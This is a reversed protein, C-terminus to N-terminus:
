SKTKIEKEEGNKSKEKNKLFARIYDKVGLPNQIKIIAYALAPTFVPPYFVYYAPEWYTPNYKLKTNYLTKFGYVDNMKEYILNLLKAAVDTEEELRALPAIALSGWEVGEDRFKMMAEYFIKEMVGRTANKRHRTVDAMYGDMGAFPVFVMFGEVENDQNLAYFYRKEMPNEFGIGGMTFVLESSKKMTFWEQSVSLIEKELAHNKRKLPEYEQITIGAKTAHNINLRVKSANGGALNYEKLRFRPEEGCKVCGMGLSAYEKLFMTTANLILLNYANQRCYDKFESLLILFDSSKCIPEGLAVVTDEIIGYAVVGEVTRGFYYVKGKELTLYSSCNQGYKKVLERVREIEDQTQIKESIYPTLVLLIGAIICIWSFWFVFRYYITHQTFITLNDFDFMVDVTQRICTFFSVSGEKLRKLHFFGLSANLLVFVVYFLYLFFSRRFNYTNLKRCYYNRSILLLFFVLVEMLFWVHFARERHVLLYQSISLFLALMTITWAASLRKYLKWALVLIIFSFLRRLVSHIELYHLLSSNQNGRAIFFPSIITVASIVLLVLILTTNLARLM